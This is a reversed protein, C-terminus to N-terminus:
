DKSILCAKQFQLGQLGPLFDLFVKQFHFISSNFIMQAFLDCFDMCGLAICGRSSLSSVTNNSPWYRDVKFPRPVSYSVIILLSIGSRDEFIAFFLVLLAITLRVEMGPFGMKSAMELCIFFLFITFYFTM